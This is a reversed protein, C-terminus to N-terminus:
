SNGGWSLAALVPGQLHSSESEGHPQKAMTSMCKQFVFVAETLSSSKIVM